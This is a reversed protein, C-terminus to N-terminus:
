LGIHPPVPLDHRETPEAARSAGPSEREGAGGKRFARPSCGTAERFVKAFYSAGEFGVASAIEGVPLDSTRLQEAAARVRITNLCAFPTTRLKERFCRTCARPSIHASAAIADLTVPEAYHKQLFVLMTKIREDGADTHAQALLSRNEVAIRRWLGTLQEMVLLEFGFTRRAYAQFASQFAALAEAQWPADPRLAVCPLRKCDALPVIYKRECVGHAMGAILTPSFVVSDMKCTHADGVPTMAHLTNANIFAGEGAHVTVSQEGVRLLLAGERMRILEIEEHWHWPVRGTLFESFTHAYMAVPFDPTGRRTLEMLASDVPIVHLQEVNNDMYHYYVAM